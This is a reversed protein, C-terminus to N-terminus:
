FRPSWALVCHRQYDTAYEAMLPPKIATWINQATYKQDILTQNPTNAYRHRKPLHASESTWQAYTDLIDPWPLYDNGILIVAFILSM